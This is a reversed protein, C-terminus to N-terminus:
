LHNFDELNQCFHPDKGNVIPSATQDFPNTRMALSFLYPYDRKLYLMYDLWENVLYRYVRKIDGQIHTLDAAPLGILCSRSALEESLHSVSLLLDTFSEHELLIPNEVLRIFFDREKQLLDFLCELDLKEMDIGYSYGKLNESISSFEQESWDGRVVLSSRIKELEPDLDSIYTLLKTGVATFFTGIVMNLKKLRNRKEMYSLLWELILTVLLVQILLFAFDQLLRDLIHQPDGFKLYDLMYLLLSVIILFLAFIIRWKIDRMITFLKDLCSKYTITRVPTL